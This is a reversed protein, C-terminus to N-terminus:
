GGTITEVGGPLTIVIGIANPCGVGCELDNCDDCIADTVEYVTGAPGSGVQRLSLVCVKNSDGGAFPSTAAISQVAFGGGDFPVLTAVTGRLDFLKTASRLSRGGIVADAGITCPLVCRLLSECALPMAVHVWLGQLPDSRQNFVVPGSTLSELPLSVGPLTQVQLWPQFSTLLSSTGVFRFLLHLWTESGGAPNRVATVVVRMEHDLPRAAGFRRPSGRQVVEVFDPLGDSDTDARQPDTLVVWEVCDPLFDGDNDVLACPVDARLEETKSPSSLVAASVLTLTLLLAKVKLIM